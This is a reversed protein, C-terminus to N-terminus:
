SRRWINVGSSTSSIALPMRALYSLRMGGPPWRWRTVMAVLRGHMQLLQMTGYVGRGFESHSAHGGFRTRSYRFYGTGWDDRKKM